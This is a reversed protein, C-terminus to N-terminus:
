QDVISFVLLSSLVQGRNCADLFFADHIIDSPEEFWEVRVDCSLVFQALRHATVNAQGRICAFKSGPQTRMLEKIDQLIYGIQSHGDEQCSIASVVQECDGDM